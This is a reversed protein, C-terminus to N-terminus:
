YPCWANHISAHRDDRSLIDGLQSVRDHIGSVVDPVVLCTEELSRIQTGSGAFPWRQPAPEDPQFEPEARKGSLM